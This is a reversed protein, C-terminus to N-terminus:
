YTSVQEKSDGTVISISSSTGLIHAGLNLLAIVDDKTKIGGSAKIGIKGNGLEDLTRAYQNTRDLTDKIVKVAEPNPYKNEVFGTKTKVILRANPNKRAIRTIIEAAERTLRDGLLDVELIIKLIKKGVANVIQTLDEEFGKYDGEIMREYRSVIDIEDVGLKILENIEATRVSTLGRGHPFDAVSVALVNSGLLLSKVMSAKCPHVVLSRFGYKKADETGQKIEQTTSVPKLISHDLTKALEQPTLPKLSPATASKVNM